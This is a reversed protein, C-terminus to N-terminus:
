QFAPIFLFAAEKNWLQCVAQGEQQSLALFPRLDVRERQLWMRLMGAAPTRWSEANRGGSPTQTNTHKIHTNTPNAYTYWPSSYKHTHIPTHIQPTSTSLTHLFWYKNYFLRVIFFVILLFGNLIVKTFMRGHIEREMCVCVCVCVCM